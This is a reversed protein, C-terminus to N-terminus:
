LNSIALKKNWKAYGVISFILYVITLAVYLTLNKQLYLFVTSINILIWFMWASIIKNAELYSAIFSFITTLADHFPSSANTFKEVIAGITIASFIGVSIFLIHQKSGIAKIQPATKKRNWIIYGYIGIFIYYMYLIAESYLGISYFLYISVISGLIGFFWCAIKEKILLILYVVNLIVASIELALNM